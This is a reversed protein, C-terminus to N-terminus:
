LRSVDQELAIMEERAERGGDNRTSKSGTEKVQLGLCKKSM